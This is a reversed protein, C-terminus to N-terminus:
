FLQQISQISPYDIETRNGDILIRQQERADLIELERVPRRPDNLASELLVRFQQVLVEIDAPQFLSRNFHLETNVVSGERRCRLKLKFRDFCVHRKAIAFTVDGAVYTPNPNEFEFCYPLYALESGAGNNGSRTLSFYDQWEQVENTTRNVQQLLDAFTQNEEIHCRIPLCRAFLGLTEALGEYFRGDYSTGVVVDREGILRRLLIQWCTLLVVSDSAGAQQSLSDLKDCLDTGIQAAVFAAEFSRNASVEAEFPLRLRQLFSLDHQQWYSRGMETDESDLLENFVESVDAYQLPTDSLKNGRLDADYSKSIDRVLKDLTISDACAAPLSVLLVHETASLCVLITNLPLGSGFPQQNMRQFLIELELEQRQSTFSTLDIKMSAASGIEDIVQVPMTLGPLIHFTTRLIEHRKVVQEIAKTLARKDLKGQLRVACRAQYSCAKDNGTLAWLHKQQPSLQLGETIV